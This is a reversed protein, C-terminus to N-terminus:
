VQRTRESIPWPSVHVVSSWAPAATQASGPLQRGDGSACTSMSRITGVISDARRPSTRSPSSSISGRVGGPRVQVERQEAGLRTALARADARRQELGDERAAVGVAHGGVELGRLPAVDPEVLAV